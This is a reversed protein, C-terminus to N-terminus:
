DVDIEFGGEATVKVEVVLVPDKGSFCIRRVSFHCVRLCLQHAGPCPLLVPLLVCFAKLIYCKLAKQPAPLLVQVEM